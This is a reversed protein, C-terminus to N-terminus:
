TLEDLLFSFKETAFILFLYNENLRKNLNKDAVFPTKEITLIPDVAESIAIDDCMGASEKKCLVNETEYILHMCAIKKSYFRKNHFYFM